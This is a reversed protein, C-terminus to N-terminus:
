GFLHTRWLQWILAGTNPLWHVQDRQLALDKQPLAPIYAFQKFATNLRRLAVQQAGVLTSPFAILPFLVVANPFKEQVKNRLLNVLRELAFLNSSDRDNFGFSLVVQKVELHTFNLKSFIALAHSINAGPFCDVQVRSDAIKPLLQLNSDGALIVARTPLIAWVSKDGKNTPHINRLVSSLNPRAELATSTEARAQPQVRCDTDGLFTANVLRQISGSSPRQPDADDGDTGLVDPADFLLDLSSTSLPSGVERTPAPVPRAPLPVVALVPSSALPFLDLTAEEDLEPRVPLLPSVQTVLEAVSARETRVCPGPQSMPVVWHGGPPVSNWFVDHINGRVHPATVLRVDEGLHQVAARLAVDWQEEPDMCSLAKLDVYLTDVRDTHYEELATYCARMWTESATTLKRSLARTLGDATSVDAEKPTFCRKLDLVKQAYGKPELGDRTFLRIERLRFDSKLLQFLVKVPGELVPQQTQSGGGTADALLPEVPGRHTARTSIPTRGTEPVTPVSPSSSTRTPEILIRTPFQVPPRRPTRGRGRPPRRGSNRDPVAWPHYSPPTFFAEEPPSPFARSPWHEYTDAWPSVHTDFYQEQPSRFLVQPRM